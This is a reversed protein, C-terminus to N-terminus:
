DLGNVVVFSLEHGHTDGEKHDEANTLSAKLVRKCQQKSSKGKDRMDYDRRKEEKKEEGGV